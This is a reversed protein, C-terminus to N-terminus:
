CTGGLQKRSRAGLFCQLGKAPGGVADSALDFGERVFEIL